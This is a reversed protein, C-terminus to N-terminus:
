IPRSSRCLLLLPLASTAMHPLSALTSPSLSGAHLCPQRCPPLLPRQQLTSPLRSKHVLNHLTCALFCAMSAKLSCSELSRAKSSCSQLCLRSGKSGVTHRTSKISSHFPPAPLLAGFFLPHARGPRCHFQSAINHCHFCKRFRHFLASSHVM